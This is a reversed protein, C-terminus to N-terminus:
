LEDEEDYTEEHTLHEIRHEKKCAAGTLTVM